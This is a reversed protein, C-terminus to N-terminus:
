ISPLIARCAANPINSGDKPWWFGGQEECIAQRAKPSDMYGHAFTKSAAMGLAMAISVTLMSDKM